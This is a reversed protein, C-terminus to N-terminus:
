PSNSVEQNTHSKRLRNYRRHRDLHTSEWALTCAICRRGGSRMHFTNEPTFPHGRKCATKRANRGSWGFGRHVNTAHTVAELHRPNVCAHNRCLHDIELGDPIPGVLLAFSVRHALAGRRGNANIRGYGRMDRHGTWDWCKSEPDRHVMSIVRDRLSMGRWTARM